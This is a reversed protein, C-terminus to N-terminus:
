SPGPERELAGVIAGLEEWGRFRGLSRGELDVAEGYVIQGTEEVLLRVVLTVHWKDTLSDKM